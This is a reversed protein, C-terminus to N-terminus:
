TSDASAVAHAIQPTEGARVDREIPGKAEIRM